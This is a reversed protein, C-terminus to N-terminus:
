EFRGAWWLRKQIHYVDQDKRQRSPCSWNRGGRLGSAEHWGSAKLSTGSETELIYTIIKTYGMGKATRWAASYLLSCANRTGDTCLRTVEATYGDDYARAIPRGVVVVGCLRDGDMAGIAFKCGVPPKNHRHYEAIFRQAERLAVPKLKLM